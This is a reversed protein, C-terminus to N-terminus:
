GPDDTSYGAPHYPTHWAPHHAARRATLEGADLSPLNFADFTSVDNAHRFSNGATNDGGWARGGRRCRYGLM